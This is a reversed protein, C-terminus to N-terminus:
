EGKPPQPLHQWYIVKDDITNNFVGDVNYHKYEWWGKPIIYCDEEEDWEAEIDEWLWCSDNELVTGDEYMATTTIYKCTGDRYKRKAVILVETEVPPLESEVSIWGNNYEAEVQNIIDIADDYAMLQGLEKPKDKIINDLLRNVPVSDKADELRERIKEFIM